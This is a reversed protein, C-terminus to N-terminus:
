GGDRFPTEGQEDVPTLQFAPRQPSEVAGRTPRVPTLWAGGPSPTNPQSRSKRRAYELKVLTSLDNSPSLSMDCEDDSDCLDPLPSTAWMIKDPSDLRISENHGSNLLPDDGVLGPDRHFCELVSRNVSRSVSKRFIPDRTTEPTSMQAERQRTSIPRRNPPSSLHVSAPQPSSAGPALTTKPRTPSSVPTPFEIPSSSSPPQLHLTSQAHSSSSSSGGLVRRRPVPGMSEAHGRFTTAADCAFVNARSILPSSGREFTTMASDSSAINTVEPQGSKIRAGPVPPTGSLPSLCRPMSSSLVSCTEEAAPTVGLVQRPTAPASALSAEGGNAANELAVQFANRPWNNAKHGSYVDKDDDIAADPLASALTDNCWPSPESPHQWHPCRTGGPSSCHPSASEEGLSGDVLSHLEDPRATALARAPTAVGRSNRNTPLEVCVPVSQIDNVATRVEEHLKKANVVDRAKAVHAILEAFIDFLDRKDDQEESPPPYVFKLDDFFSGLDKYAQFVRRAYQWLFRATQAGGAVFQDMHAHFADNNDARPIGSGNYLGTNVFDQAHGFGRFLQVCDQYATATRVLQAASLSQLFGQDCLIDLTGQRLWALILHLLSIDKHLPFRLETLKQLTSLKFGYHSLPASSRENLVNVFIRVTQFLERLPGTREKLSTLGENLVDLKWRCTRATDAFTTELMMCELRPGVAPLEAAGHLLAHLHPHELRDLADRGHQRVFDLVTPSEELHAVLVKRLDELM